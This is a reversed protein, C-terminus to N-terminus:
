HFNPLWHAHLRWNYETDRIPLTYHESFSNTYIASSHPLQFLSRTEYRGKGNLPQGEVNKKSFYRTWTDAVLGSIRVWNQNNKLENAYDHFAGLVKTVDSRWMYWPPEWHISKRLIQYEPSQHFGTSFFGFKTLFPFLYKASWMFVYTRKIAALTM